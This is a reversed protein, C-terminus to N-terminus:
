EIEQALVHELIGFNKFDLVCRAKTQSVFRPNRTEHCEKVKEMEDKVIGGLHEYWSHACWWNSQKTRRANEGTMWEEMNEKPILLLFASTFSTRGRSEHQVYGKHVANQRTFDLPIGGEELGEAAATELEAVRPDVDKTFIKWKIGGMIMETIM